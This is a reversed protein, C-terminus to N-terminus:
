RWPYRSQRVEKGTGLDWIRVIGGEGSTLARKGDASVAATRVEQRVGKGVLDRVIEGREVDWLWVDGDRTGTVAWRGDASVALAPPDRLEDLERVEPPPKMFKVPVKGDAGPAPEPNGPGYLVVPGLVGMVIRRGDASAAARSFSEPRGRLKWVAKNARLDWLTLTAGGALLLRNGDALSTVMGCPGDSGATIASEEKGSALDWVRLRMRDRDAGEEEGASYVRRGDSSLALATVYRGHPQWSRLLRGSGIDWVRLVGKGDSTVATGTKWDVALHWVLRHFDVDPERYGRRPFPLYPDGPGPSCRRLVRGSDLDWVFLTDGAATVGRSGDPSVSACTVTPGETTPGTLTRVEEWTTADWVVLREGFIEVRAGDMTSVALRGDRSLLEVLPPSQDPRWSRSCRGTGLDWLRVERRDDWTLLSRDGLFVVAVAWGEHGTLSLVKEGSAVEWVEAAGRRGCAAIFRGTPSFAARAWTDEPGFTRLLRGSRVDWVRVADGGLTLLRRGSPDFALLDIDNGPVQEPRCVERGTTADWIRFSDGVVGAAALRGDASLSVCRVNAKFEGDMLCDNKGTDVDWVRVRYGTDPHIIRRGDASVAAVPYIGRGQPVFPLPMPHARGTALDWRDLGQRGHLVILAKGDSSFALPEHRTDRPDQWHPSASAPAALALGLLIPTTLLRHKM